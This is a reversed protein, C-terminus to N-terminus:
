QKVVKLTRTEGTDTTIRLYYTGAPLNAAPIHAQHIGPQELQYRANEIPIAHGLIDQLTMTVLATRGMEFSLAIDDTMPNDLLKADLLAISSMTGSAGEVANQQGRLIELHIQELSPVTSDYPHMSTDRTFRNQTATDWDSYNPGLQGAQYILTLSDLWYERRSHSASNYYKEFADEWGPCRHNELIYKAVTMQAAADSQPSGSGQLATFMDVVDSCYWMTDPNYYLVKQLWNLYESWRGVGGKSWISVAGNIDNFGRWANEGNPGGKSWFPCQELFLRLTDYSEKGRGDSLLLYGTAYLKGCTTDPLNMIARLDLTGSSM